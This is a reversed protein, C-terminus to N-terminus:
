PNYEKLAEKNLVQLETRRNLKRGEATKNDAKPMSEGYGKATLVDRLEPAASVMYGTVSEARGQSLTLNRADSGVDDTHGAVEIKLKPYKTLMKAIINLYPKSNISIDTKNTEFYVADMLLLGTSLLQKEADSRKSKELELNRRTEALAASDRRAKEAMAASDSRAKAAAAAAASDSYAQQRVRALSDEVAQEKLGRNANRLGAKERAERQARAKAEARAGAETDITFALGAFLRYPELARTDAADNRDGSLALDGGATLNIAYSTRFQVSPTMWLPDKGFDIADIPSRNHLELGVVGTFFNVQAGTSLLFLADTGSEASTVVGENFHWKFGLDESGFVLSQILKGMFDLGKRAEFYSYGDAFNSDIPNDTLGQYLGVQAAMRIPASPAFPLTGQLGAGVTGPGSAQSSEYDTSGFGTLSAFADVYRSIGFGLSGIGTFINAGDNPAGPFTRQQQYFSGNLGIILRGQGLAEASGTQGLGRTGYWTNTPSVVRIETNATISETAPPDVNTAADQASAFYPFVFALATALLRHSTM